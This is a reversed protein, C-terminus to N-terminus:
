VKFPLAAGLIPDNGGVMCSPAEMNALFGPAAKGIAMRTPVKDVRLAQPLLSEEEGDEGTAFSGGGGVTGVGGVVGGVVGGGGGVVGGVLGGTCIV